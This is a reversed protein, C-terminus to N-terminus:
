GLYDEGELKITIKTRNKPDRSYCKKVQWVGPSIEEWHKLKGGLLNVAKLFMAYYFNEDIM